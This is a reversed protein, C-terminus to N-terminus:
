NAEGAAGRRGNSGQRKNADGGEDAKDAKYPEVVGTKALGELWEVRSVDFGAIDGPSYIGHPKLFKVGIKEM